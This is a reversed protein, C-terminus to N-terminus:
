VVFEIYTFRHSKVAEAWSLLRRPQLKGQLAVSASNIMEAEGEGGAGVWLDADFRLARLGGRGCSSCAGRSSM